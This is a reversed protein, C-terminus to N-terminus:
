NRKFSFQQVWGLSTSALFTDGSVTIPAIVIGGDLSGKWSLGGLKPDIGVLRSDDFTVILREPSTGGAYAIRPPKTTSRTFDSGWIPALTKLDLARIRGDETALFARDGSDDVCFTFPKKFPDQYRQDRITGDKANVAVLEGDSNAVLIEGRARRIPAVPNGVIVPHQWLPHGGASDFARLREDTSVFVVSDGDDNGLVGGFRIVGDTEQRWRSGKAGELSCGFISGTTTAFIIRGVKSVVLPRGLVAGQDVPFQSVDVTHRALDLVAVGGQTLGVYGRDGVIVTQSFRDGFVEDRPGVSQPGESDADRRRWAAVPQMKEDLACVRGDRGVAIWSKSGPHFAFEVDVPADGVFSTAPRDEIVFTVFGNEPWEDPKELVQEAVPAADLNPVMSGSSPKRVQIVVKDVLTTYTGVVVPDQASTLGMPQGNVSVAYGMPETRILVPLIVNTRARTRPFDHLIKVGLDFWKKPEKAVNKAYNMDQLLSEAAKEKQAREAAEPDESLKTFFRALPHRFLIALVFVAGVIGVVLPVTGLTRRKAQARADLDALKRVLDSRDPDLAIISEYCRRLREADRAPDLKRSIEEFIALAQRDDGSRRLSDALPILVKPEGPALEALRGYLSAAAVFDNVAYAEEAHQVLEEMPLAKIAGAHVLDALLKCLEFESILTREALGEVNTKGDILRIENRLREPIEVTDLKSEDLVVFIEKTSPVAQKVLEWEDLRRLAEMILSNTNLSLRMLNSPSKKMDDPIHDAIFEFEAKKWLFLDYIEEEIQFKVIRAIEDEDCFGEEVLIEGLKKRNQKQLKLALELDEETIKGTSILLEGLKMRRSSSLLQIEGEAFYIKKERKKDSIILTGSHRNMALSQFIDSLNLVELNGKFSAGSM